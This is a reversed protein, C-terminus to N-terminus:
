RSESLIRDARVLLDTGYEDHLKRLDSIASELRDLMVSAAKIGAKVGVNSTTPDIAEEGDQGDQGNGGQVQQQSFQTYWHRITAPKARRHGSSKVARRVDILTATPSEHLQNRIVTELNQRPM